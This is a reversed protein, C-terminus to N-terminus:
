GFSCTRKALQRLQRGPDRSMEEISTIQSHDESEVIASLEEFPSLLDAGLLAGCLVGLRVDLTRVSPLRGTQPPLVLPMPAPDGDVSLVRLGRAPILSLLRVPRRGDNAVDVQLVASRGELRVVTSALQLSEGLPPYLCASQVSDDVSGIPLGTGELAVERPGAPTELHVRLERPEPEPSPPSGDGPCRVRRQLVVVASGDRADLVAGGAYRLGGLQASAVRVDRPGRNLLRV